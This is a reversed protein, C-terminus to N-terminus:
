EKAEYYVHGHKEFQSDSTVKHYETDLTGQVDVLRSRVSDLQRNVRHAKGYHEQMTHLLATVDAAVQRFKKAAVVHEDHTLPVRRNSM